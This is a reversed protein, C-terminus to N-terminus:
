EAMFCSIKGNAVVYIFGSPIMNLSILWFYLFVMYNWKCTSDWCSFWCFFLVFHFCVWLSSVTTTLFSLPWFYQLWKIYPLHNSSKVHPDAWLMYLCWTVIFYVSFSYVGIVNWTFFIFFKFNFFLICNYNQWM